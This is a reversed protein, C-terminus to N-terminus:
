EPAIEESREEGFIDSSQVSGYGISDGGFKARIEDLTQELKSRKERELTDDPTSFLSIQEAASDTKELAMGTLGLLRVPAKDSWNERVLELAADYLEKGIDTPRELRRQRTINKFEPSRIQVQVSGCKFGHKRLRGAVQDSLRLLGARLDAEGVLDRRFTISNGISKIEEQEDYRRVPSRDDGRAYECIQRGMKGLAHELMEPSAAALDGITKINFRLLTEATRKGVFLMDSAPLRWAVEKFNERSIVSTADPKKLDSGLKAFVKCFSVGVSITLDFERKMRERLENAITVGDGFLERSGGVDLWSEDIGFPEVLDTYELYVANVAKSIESYRDHHPPVLVLEPCKKKAQWVTEATKIGFGKALENKALIIGHRNEPSGCVAMPVKKLEPKGISEVSAYFSNLDCHLITRETM